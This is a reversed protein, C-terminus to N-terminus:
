NGYGKHVNISAYRATGTLSLGTRLPIHKKTTSSRYKSCLGFDIIYIKDKYIKSGMLFNEPKLDRHILNKGHIHAIREIMQIAVLCVTKISFSKECKNHFHLLSDGLIEMVLINSTQNQGYCYINPIGDLILFIKGGKLYSM